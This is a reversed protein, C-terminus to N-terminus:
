LKSFNSLAANCGRSIQKWKPCAVVFYRGGVAALLYIQLVALM